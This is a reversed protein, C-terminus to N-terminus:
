LVHLPDDAMAPLLSKDSFHAPLLDDKGRLPADLVLLPLGVFALAVPPIWSVLIPFRSGVELEARSTVAGAGVMVALAPYLQINGAFAAVTGALSMRQRGLEVVDHIRSSQADLSGHITAEGAMLRALRRPIFIGPCHPVLGAHLKRFVPLAKLRLRALLGRLEPVVARRVLIPHLSVREQLTDHVVPPQLARVAVLRM